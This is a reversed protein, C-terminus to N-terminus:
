SKTKTKRTKAPTPKTAAPKVVAPATPGTSGYQKTQPTSPMQEQAQRRIKGILDVAEEYPLKMVGQLLKNAEEETFEFKFNM